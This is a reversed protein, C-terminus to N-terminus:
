RCSGSRYLPLPVIEGDVSVTDANAIAERKARLNHRVIVGHVRPQANQHDVTVPQDGTVRVNVVRRNFRKPDRQKLLYILLADHAPDPSALARQLAHDAIRDTTADYIDRVGRDFDPDAARWDYVSRWSMGAVRAAATITRGDALAALLVQKKELHSQQSRAHRSGLRGTAAV